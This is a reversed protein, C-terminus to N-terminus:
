RGALLAAIVALGTPGALLGGVVVLRPLREVGAFVGHPAASRGRQPVATVQGAQVLGADLTAHDPDDDGLRVPESWGDAGVDSDRAPDGAHPATFVTGTPLRDVLVRYSGARLGSFGWRGNEATRASALPRTGVGYLRVRAGPVGPEDAGQEGDGNRDLWVTDGLMYAGLLGAALAGDTFDATAAGADEAARVNPAGQRLAFVPTLGTAPDADSDAAPDSGAGRRTFRRHPPLDSFQLRYRGEPLNSFLYRGTPDTPTRAVLSGDAALLSV